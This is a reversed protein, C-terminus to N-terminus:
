NSNSYMRRFPNPVMYLPIGHAAARARARNFRLIMNAEWNRVFRMKWTGQEHNNMDGFENRFKMKWLNDSSGLYRLESCVCSATAVDAGPLFELIRMMLDKPLQMFCRPVPLGIEECFDSLLPLAISDKVTRWFEIVKKEVIDTQKYCNSWLASIFAVRQDERFEVCRARSKKGPGNEFKSYVTTFEGLTLLNLVVTKIVSGNLSEKLTYCLPCQNLFTFGDVVTNTNKDFSVFGTELMVAHIGIIFLRHVKRPADGLEAMVVERLFRPVSLPKDAVVGTEINDEMESVRVSIEGATIQPLTNQTKSSM